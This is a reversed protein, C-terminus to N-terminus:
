KYLNLTKTGLKAAYSSPKIKLNDTAALCDIKTARQIQRVQDIPDANIMKIGYHTIVALTPKTEKLLTIADATCLHGKSKTDDPMQVNLVLIDCKRYEEIMEKSLETDSTYGLVFAPTFIKLGITTPDSHNAKIGRIEVDNIGINKGPELELLREVCKRHFNTITPSMDETGSFFSKSGVVVGRKDLGAHTMASILANADSCHNIHNHTIVLATLERINVGAKAGAMLAGPGPDIHLTTQNVTVLFGGSGRIQKGVVTSDGGTGLFLINAEM